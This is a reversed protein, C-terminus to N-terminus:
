DEVATNIVNGEDSLQKKIAVDTDPHTDKTETIPVESNNVTCKNEQQAPEDCKSVETANEDSFSIDIHLWLYKM